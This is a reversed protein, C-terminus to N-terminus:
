SMCYHGFLAFKAQFCINIKDINKHSFWYCQQKVDLKGLSTDSGTWFNFNWGWSSSLKLIPLRKLYTLIYNKELLLETISIYYFWNGLKTCWTTMQQQWLSSWIQEFLSIFFLITSKNFNSILTFLPLSYSIM